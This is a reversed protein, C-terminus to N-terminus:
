SHGLCGLSLYMARLPKHTITNHDSRREVPCSNNGKDWLNIPESNFHLPSFVLSNSGLLVMSSRLSIAIAALRHSTTLQPLLLLRETNFQGLPQELLLGTVILCKHSLCHNHLTPFYAKYSWHPPTPIYAKYSWHPAKDNMATAIYL